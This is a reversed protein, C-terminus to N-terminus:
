LSTLVTNFVTNLKTGIALMVAVVAISILALILGYEVMTQGEERRTASAAHALMLNFRSWFKM